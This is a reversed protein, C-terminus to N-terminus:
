SKFGLSRPQLPAVNGNYWTDSREGRTNQCTRADLAKSFVLMINLVMVIVNIPDSRM